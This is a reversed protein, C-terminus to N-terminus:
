EYDTSTGELNPVYIEIYQVGIESNSMTLVVKILSWGYDSATLLATSVNSSESDSGVTVNSGEVVSWIASTLTITERDAWVNTDVAFNKAEGKTM